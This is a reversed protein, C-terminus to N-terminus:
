NILYSFGGPVLSLNNYHDLVNQLNKAKLRSNWVNKKIVLVIKEWLLDSCNQYCLLMAILLILFFLLFISMWHVLYGHSFQFRVKLRVKCVANCISLRSWTQKNQPIWMIWVAHTNVWVLPKKLPVTSAIPKASRQPIASRRQQFTALVLHNFGLSLAM